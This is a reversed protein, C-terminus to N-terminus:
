EVPEVEIIEFNERGLKLDALDFTEIAIQHADEETDTEVTATFRHRVVFEVTFKLRIPPRRTLASVSDGPTAHSAGGPDNGAPPTRLV